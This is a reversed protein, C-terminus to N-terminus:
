ISILIANIFKRIIINGKVNKDMLTIVDVIPMKREPKKIIM